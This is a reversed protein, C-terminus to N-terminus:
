RPEDKGELLVRHVHRASGEGKAERCFILSVSAHLLAGHYPAKGAEGAGRDMPLKGVHLGLLFAWTPSSDSRHCMGQSQMGVAQQLLFSSAHQQAVPHM